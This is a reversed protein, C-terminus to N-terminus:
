EKNLSRELKDVKKSLAQVKKNLEEVESKKPINITDLSKNILDTINKEFDEKTKGAKESWEDFLKKGQAESLEGKNILEDVFEKFKEQIGLGAMCTKQFIDSLSM